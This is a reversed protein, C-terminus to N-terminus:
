RKSDDILKQVAVELYNDILYRNIISPTIQPFANTEYSVRTAAQHLAEVRDELVYVSRTLKKKALPVEDKPQEM